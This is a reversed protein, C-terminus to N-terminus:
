NGSIKGTVINRVSIYEGDEEGCGGQEQETKQKDVCLGSPFSITVKYQIGNKYSEQDIASM